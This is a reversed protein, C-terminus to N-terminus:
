GLKKQSGKTKLEDANYGLEKLIKMTAPIIQHNIYYEPDYNKAMEEIRARDSISNGDKTIVFGIVAGELEDKKKVGEKVALNAASIEPSKIDYKGLGKRIQTNIVLENLPVKGEKLRAVVDKVIEAAKDKDGEKLITELVARQTDRAIKSWDRRVLEFGKIKIRGSESLLAYKKKAGGEGGKKGVFVGRSYFDELELEMGEPLKKNVGDVFKMAEDKTKDVMLIFISDTDSYLVKFGANEADDIVKTIFQRGYATVSAACQRNYWRSRAYGMYGYFSNALIKLAQYRASLSKDDPNKKYLKKVENREDILKKLVLPIVGKRDKRFKTGDPSVFASKEDCEPCLTSIDINHAIIISPYLGRFDFVAINDYIGAEPTKVYAGEFPNITREKIEYDSPKNPIIHNYIHAYRMLVFEVLQGTTSVAAEALTTGSVKAVEMELPLFFDYLADLSIADSLSYRALEELEEGGNDWLQWINTKVVTVKTNGTVANYVDGLKFSNVKILRETAGVISVFKAVNYIDLNARGPIKFSQVLGHSEQRVEGDFRGIDFGSKTVKGRELLYPLDFNSSNYGVIIDADNKKVVNVFEGIMEAESDFSRVFKEKIKKTAFVESERGNTYSIMIVPDKQMRPMGGAANYTEIDFSIHNLPIDMQTDENEISDLILEGEKEHVTAKIAMLPSINKDILYRKWFVIDYEYCDGFDSIAGSLKPVFKPNRAYVRFARVEKTGLMVKTEEAKEVKIDEGKEGVIQTNELSEKKLSSNSPVLYFYPLFNYDRLIKTGEKTKLAIRIVSKSDVIAYDVDIIVGSLVTDM